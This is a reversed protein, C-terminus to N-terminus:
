STACIAVREVALPVGGEDARALTLLSEVMETM